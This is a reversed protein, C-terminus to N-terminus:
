GLRATTELPESVGDLCTLFGCAWRADPIKIGFRASRSAPVTCASVAEARHEDCRDRTERHRRGAKVRNAQTQSLKFIGIRRRVAQRRGPERSMGEVRRGVRCM